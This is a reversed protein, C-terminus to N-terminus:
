ALQPPPAPHMCIGHRSTPAPAKRELFERSMNAELQSMVVNTFSSLCFPGTVPLTAHRSFLWSVILMLLHIKQAQHVHTTNTTMNTDMSTQFRKAWVHYAIVSFNKSSIINPVLVVFVTKTSVQVFRCYRFRFPSFWRQFFWRHREHKLKLDRFFSADDHMHAEFEEIKHFDMIGKVGFLVYLPDEPTNNNSPLQTTTQAGTNSGAPTNQSAAPTGISIHSSQTAGITAAPAYRMYARSPPTVATSSPTTNTLPLKRWLAQSIHQLATTWKMPDPPMNCCQCNPPHESMAALVQEIFIADQPSIDAYLTEGCIKSIDACVGAFYSPYSVEWELREQGPTLLPVRPQLPWWDWKTLTCKEVSAKCRNIISVDNKQSIRIAHRPTRDVIDRFRQPLALLRLHLILVKM